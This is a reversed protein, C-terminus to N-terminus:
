GISPFEDQRRRELSPNESLLRAGRNLLASIFEEPTKGAKAAKAKLIALIDPDIDLTIQYPTANM